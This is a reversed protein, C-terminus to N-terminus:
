KGGKIAEPFLVALEVDMRDYVAKMEKRQKEELAELEARLKKGAEVPLIKIPHFWQGPGFGKTEVAGDERWRVIEGGLVYPFRDYRWFAYLQPLPVDNEIVQPPKSRRAAEVSRTRTM